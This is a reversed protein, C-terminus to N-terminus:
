LNVTFIATAGQEDMHQVGYSHARRYGHVNKLESNKTEIKYREKSKSRYYGSEQFAIQDQRLKPKISVSYIKTKSRIQLRNYALAQTIGRSLSPTKAKGDNFNTIKVAFFASKNWEPISCYYQRNLKNFSFSYVSM